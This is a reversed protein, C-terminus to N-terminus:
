EPYPINEGKYKWIARFREDRYPMYFKANMSTEYCSILLKALGERIKKEFCVESCVEAYREDQNDTHMILDRIGAVLTEIENNSKERIKLGMMAALNRGYEPKEGINEIMSIWKVRKDTGALVYVMGIVLLM